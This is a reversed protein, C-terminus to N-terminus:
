KGETLKSINILHYDVKTPIQGANDNVILQDIMSNLTAVDVDTGLVYKNTEGNLGKVTLELRKRQTDFKSKSIMGVPIDFARANINPAVPPDERLAPHMIYRREKRAPITGALDLYNRFDRIVLEFGVTYVLKVDGCPDLILPSDEMRFLEEDDDAMNEPSGNELRAYYNPIVAYHDTLVLRDTDLFVRIEILSDAAMRRLTADHFGEFRQVGFTAFAMDLQLMNGAYMAMKAACINASAKPMYRFDSDTM